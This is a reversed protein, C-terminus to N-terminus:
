GIDRAPNRRQQQSRLCVCTEQPCSSACGFCYGTIAQMWDRTYAVGAVGRARVHRVRRQTIGMSMALGRITKGHSRMLKVISPGTIRDPSKDRAHHLVGSHIPPHQSRMQQLLVSGLESIFGATRDSTDAPEATTQVADIMRHIEM